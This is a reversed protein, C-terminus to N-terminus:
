WAGGTRARAGAPGAASRSNRRGARQAVSRGGAVGGPGAPRRRGSGARDAVVVPLRLGREQLRQLFAEGSLGPLLLDLIVLRPLHVALHALAAEAGAVRQAAYGHQGLGVQLLRAFSPDDEVILVDGGASDAAAIPVTFRFTAGQGPGASEAWLRGGQAEVLKHSIALGLGTGRIARRDSSDVRYFRRFLQPLAEAPLGLGQDQVAIEVMAADRRATLRIAGGSPSYKRANSLLNGLIQRLRDPDVLVPPLDDSLEVQIPCLPDAGAAQAAAHLLPPLTSVLPVVEQNGSEIRQLDLFDNILSTLRQGEQLMTQLFQRRQLEPFERSLLLEAFGVLSALPTRLEHSVVSVLEDKLREVERERTVDRVLRGTGLSGTPGAIPFVLVAVDRPPVGDLQYEFGTPVGSDRAAASAQQARQLTAAPDVTRGYIGALVESLPQGVAATQTVGYLDVMRPNWFAVRDAPDVIALGDTLNVFVAEYLVRAEARAEAEAHAQQTRLRETIDQMTVVAGLRAGQADVLAQGSALVTRAPAQQPKIIMEVDRVQEGALVRRLPVEEPALRTTGDARYLDYHEAWQEAPLPAAPLGYFERTARNLFRVVGNADCAVVGVDLNELLAQLYGRQRQLGTEAQRRQAFARRIIAGTLLVSLVVLVSGAVVILRTRFLGQQGQAVRMALLRTEEGNMSAIGSRVQAMVAADPTAQAAAIAPALGQTRRATMAGQLLAFEQDIALQLQQVNRQEVRNDMTLTRLAQVGTNADLVATQYSLVDHDNGTVVYSRAASQGRTVDALVQSITFRVEQTHTEWNLTDVLANTSYYTSVSTAAVALLILLLGAVALVAERPLARM